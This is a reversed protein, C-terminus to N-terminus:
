IVVINSRKPMKMVIPNYLNTNGDHDVFIPDILLGKSNGEKRELHVVFGENIQEAKKIKLEPYKKAVIDKAEKLTMYM